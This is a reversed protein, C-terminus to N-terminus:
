RKRALPKRLPVVAVAPLNFIRLPIRISLTSGRGPESEVTVEGCLLRVLRQVLALGLGLGPYRQAAGGAGRRFSEFVAQLQDPPIGIGTDRVEVSLHFRDASDPSADAHLEIRGETTFKVANALVHSVVQRIRTSDGCVGTPVDASLAVSFELGKEIAREGYEGAVSGLLEVLNFESEELSPQGAELAAFELASNLEELLEEARTRAAAVYEIQQDDLATELLLDTMGLIDALPTRLEHHLGALFARKVRRLPDEPPPVGYEIAAIAMLAIM